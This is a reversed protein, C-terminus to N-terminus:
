YYLTSQIIFLKSCRKKVHEEIKLIEIDSLSKKIRLDNTDIIEMHSGLYIQEKKLIKEIAKLREEPTDWFIQKLVYKLNEATKFCTLRKDDSSCM